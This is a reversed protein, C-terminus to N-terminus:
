SDDPEPASLVQARVMEALNYGIIRYEDDVKLQMPGNFPAVHLVELPTGPRLGLADLYELRDPERTLVRSIRVQMGATAEALLIDDLPKLSGDAEPIPEGHPCYAPQKAMEYMRDVIMDSLSLSLSTAEEFIEEWSFGMVEVLFSEAIRHRRLHKLAENRGAETLRIGQYPEHEMLDLEKLRNVMRNVAPASVMLIDALSSTSVYGDENRDGRETLRYVEALYVRMRANLDDSM